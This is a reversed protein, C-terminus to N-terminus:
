AIDAPRGYLIAHSCLRSRANCEQEVHLGNLSPLEAGDGNGKM